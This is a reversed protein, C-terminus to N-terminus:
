AGTGTVPTDGQSAGTGPTAAAADTVTQVGDPKVPQDGVMFVLGADASQVIRDVTGSVKKGDADMGEIHRGILASAQSLQAGGLATAVQQLTDIMTFQAMEGLMQSNDMPQAPDQNELQALFLKMFDDKGLGYVSSKAKDSQLSTGAPGGVTSASSSGTVNM